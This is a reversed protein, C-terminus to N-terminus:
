EIILLKNETEVMEGEKVFIEKVTGNQPASIETEMKMAELILLVEGTKVLDGKKIKVSLVKAPFPATIIKVIKTPSSKESSIVKSTYSLSNEKDSGKKTGKEEIEEVEVEYSKENVTVIFKRKEM